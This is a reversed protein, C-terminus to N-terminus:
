GAMRRTSHTASAAEAVGVLKKLLLYGESLSPKAPVPNESERLFWNITSENSTGDILNVVPVVTEEVRQM